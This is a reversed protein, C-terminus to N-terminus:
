IQSSGLDTFITLDAPELEEVVERYLMRVFKVDHTIGCRDLSSSMIAAACVGDADMHSVVQISDNRHKKILEAARHVTAKM